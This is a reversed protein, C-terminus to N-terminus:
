RRKLPSGACQPLPTVLVPHDPLDHIESKATEEISSGPTKHASRGRRVSRRGDLQDEPSGGLIQPKRSVTRNSIPVLARRITQMRGGVLLRLRTPEMTIAYTAYFLATFWGGLHRESCGWQLGTRSDNAARMWYYSSTGRSCRFLGTRSARTVGDDLFGNKPSFGKQRAQM